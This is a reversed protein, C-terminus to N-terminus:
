GRMWLTGRMKVDLPPDLFLPGLVPLLDGPLPAGRSEAAVPLSELVDNAGVLEEAVAVDDDAVTVDNEPEVAIGARLLPVRSGM